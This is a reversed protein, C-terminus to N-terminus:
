CVDDVNIAWVIVLCSEFDQKKEKAIRSRSVSTPAYWRNRADFYFKGFMRLLISRHKRGHSKLGVKRISADAATQYSPAKGYNHFKSVREEASLTERTLYTFNIRGCM